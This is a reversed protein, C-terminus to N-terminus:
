DKTKPDSCISTPIYCHTFLSNGHPILMLGQPQFCFFNSVIERKALDRGAQYCPTPEEGEHHQNYLVKRFGHDYPLDFPDRGPDNFSLNTDSESVM